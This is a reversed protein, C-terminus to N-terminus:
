RERRSTEQRWRQLIIVFRAGPESGPVYALTGASHRLVESAVLLGVGPPRIGTGGAATPGFLGAVVDPPLGPGNDAVVIEVQDGDNRATIRITGGEQSQLASTSNLVLNLLAHELHREIAAAAPVSPDIAVEMRAGTRGADHLDNIFQVPERVSVPGLEAPAPPHLVRSLLDLSRGLQSCSERLIPGIATDPDALLDALLMLSQAPGRLDHLVWRAALGFAAARNAAVLLELDRNSPPITAIWWGVGPERINWVRSLARPVDM